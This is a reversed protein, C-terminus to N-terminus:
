PIGGARGVLRAALLRDAGPLGAATLALRRVLLSRRSSPLFSEATRRGAAQADRVLPHMRDQYRRLGEDPSSARRLEDVLVWAGLVALSAGQGALLSVAQCSDGVLVVRGRSWRAARVQSVRDYYLDPPGPCLDLALPVVWGLGAYHQLVSSRPDDPLRPDDTRHVAFVATRGDRLGYLGVARGVTDTLAFRGALLDHLLPDRVLYAATHFGLFREVRRHSTRDPDGGLVGDRVRSHIGDAGVVLQVQATTGDSLTARAGTGTTEVGDLSTGFRFRVGREALGDALAAELDGRMLSVLRGGLARRMRGYDLRATRRGRRDVYEVGDVEYAVDRLRPLLGMSEAAAYGPGFFDIMYGGGRLSPAREVVEVAWGAKALLRATALGAIGAGCVLATPDGPAPRQGPM